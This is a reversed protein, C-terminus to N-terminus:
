YETKTAIFECYEDGLGVCKTEEVSYHSDFAVELIGRIFGKQIFCIPKNIKRLSPIIPPNKIKTRIEVKDLDFSVNGWGCLTSTVASKEIIKNGQ